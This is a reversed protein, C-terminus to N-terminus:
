VHARGIEGNVLAVGPDLFGQAARRGMGNLWPSVIHPAYISTRTDSGLGSVCGQEIVTEDRYVFYPKQFRPLPLFRNVGNPELVTLASDIRMPSPPYAVFPAPSSEVQESSGNAVLNRLYNKDFFDTRLGSGEFTPLASFNGVSRFLM